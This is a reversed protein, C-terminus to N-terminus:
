SGRGKKPLLPCAQFQKNSKETAETEGQKEATSSGREQDRINKRDKSYLREQTVQSRENKSYFCCVSRIQRRSGLKKNCRTKVL